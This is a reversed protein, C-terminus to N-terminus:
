TMELARPESYMATPGLSETSIAFTAMHSSHQRAWLGIQPVSPQSSLLLPHLWNRTM